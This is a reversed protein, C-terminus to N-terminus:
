RTFWMTLLGQHSSPDVEDPLGGSREIYLTPLSAAVGELCATHTANARTRMQELGDHSRAFIDEALGLYKIKGSLLLEWFVSPGSLVASASLCPPACDSLQDGPGRSGRSLVTATHAFSQSPGTAVTGRRELSAEEWGAPDDGGEGM